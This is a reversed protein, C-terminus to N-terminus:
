NRQLTMLKFEYDQISFRLQGRVTEGVKFSRRDTRRDQKYLFFGDLKQVTILNHDVTSPIVSIIKGSIRYKKTLDFTM